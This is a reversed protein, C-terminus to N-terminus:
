VQKLTLPPLETREEVAAADWSSPVHPARGASSAYSWAAPPFDLHTLARTLAADRADAAVVDDDDDDVLGLPAAVSSQWLAVARFLCWRWM